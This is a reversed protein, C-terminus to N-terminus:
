RSELQFDVAIFYLGPGKINGLDNCSGAESNSFQDVYTSKERSNVIVADM